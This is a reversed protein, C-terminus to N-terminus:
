CCPKGLLRQYPHKNLRYVQAILPTTKVFEGDVGSSFLEVAAGAGYCILMLLESLM